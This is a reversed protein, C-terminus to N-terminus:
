TTSKETQVELQLILGSHLCQHIEVNQGPMVQRFKKLVPSLEGLEFRYPGIDYVQTAKRGDEQQFHVQEVRGFIVRKKGASLDRWLRLTLNPRKELLCLALMIVFSAIAAGGLFHFWDHHYSLLFAFLLLLAALLYLASMALQWQLNRTILRKDKKSFPIIREGNKM